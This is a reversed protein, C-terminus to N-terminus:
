LLECIYIYIITYIYGNFWLQARYSYKQSSLRYTLLSLRIPPLWSDIVPSVSIASYPTFRYLRYRYQYKLNYFRYRM